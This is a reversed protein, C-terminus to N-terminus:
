QTAGAYNEILCRVLKDWYKDGEGAIIPPKMECTAQIRVIQSRYEAPAVGCETFQHKARSENFRGDPGVTGGFQQLTRTGAAEPNPKTQEVRYTDNVRQMCATFMDQDIAYAPASAAVISGACVVGAALRGVWRLVPM